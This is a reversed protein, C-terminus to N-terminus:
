INSLSTMGNKIDNARSWDGSELKALIWLVWYGYFVTVTSVSGSPQTAAVSDGLSFEEVVFYQILLPQLKHTSGWKM